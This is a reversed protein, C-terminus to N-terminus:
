QREDDSFQEDKIQGRSNRQVMNRRKNPDMERHYITLIKTSMENVELISYLQIIRPVTDKENNVKLNFLVNHKMEKKKQDFKSM